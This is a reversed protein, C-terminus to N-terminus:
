VLIGPLYSRRTDSYERFLMHEVMSAAGGFEKRHLEVMEQSEVSQSAVSLAKRYRPAFVFLEIQGVRIFSPSVRCTMAVNESIIVDPQSIYKKILDRRKSLPLYAIHTDGM